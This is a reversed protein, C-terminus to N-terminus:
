DELSKIILLVENVEEALSELQEITTDEDEQKKDLLLTLADEILQVQKANLM